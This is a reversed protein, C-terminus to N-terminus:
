VKQYRVNSSLGVNTEYHRHIHLSILLFHITLVDAAKSGKLDELMNFGM